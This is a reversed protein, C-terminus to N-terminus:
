GFSLEYDALEYADRCPRCGCGVPAGCGRSRVRQPTPATVMRTIGKAMRRWHEAKSGWKAPPAPHSKRVIRLIPFPFSLQRNSM